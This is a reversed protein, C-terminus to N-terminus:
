EQKEVGFTGAPQNLQDDHTKNAQQKQNVVKTNEKEREIVFTDTSQNLPNAHTTNTQPEGIVEETNEECTNNQKGGDVGPTQM